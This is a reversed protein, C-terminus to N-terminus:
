PRLNGELLSKGADAMCLKIKIGFRNELRLVALIIDQTACGEMAFMQLAGTNRCVIIMPWMKAAVKSGKMPHCRVDGLPDISTDDFAKAGLTVKVSINGMPPTYTVRRQRNCGLCGYSHDQTIKRMNTFCIVFQGSQIKAKIGDTTFHIDEGKWVKGRHAYALIKVAMSDDNSITPLFRTGFIENAKEGTLRMFRSEVGHVTETHWPKLM